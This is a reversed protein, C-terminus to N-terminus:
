LTYLLSTKENRSYFKQHQKVVNEVELEDIDIMEATESMDKQVNYQNWRHRSNANGARSLVVAKEWESESSSRYRVVNDKKLVVKDKSELSSVKNWSEQSPEPNPQDGSICDKFTDGDAEKPNYEDPNCSASRTM